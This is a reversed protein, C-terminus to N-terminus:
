MYMRRRTFICKISACYVYADYRDLPPKTWTIHCTGIPHDSTHGLIPGVIVVHMVTVPLLALTPRNGTFKLGAILLVLKWSVHERLTCHSKMFVVATQRINYQTTRWVAVRDRFPLWFREVTDCVFDAVCTWKCRIRMVSLYSIVWPKWLFIYHKNSIWNWSAM